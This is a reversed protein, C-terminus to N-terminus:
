SGTSGSMILDREIESIAKKLAEPDSSTAKSVPEFVDTFFKMMFDETYAKIARRESENTAKSLVAKFIEDDKLLKLYEEKKM